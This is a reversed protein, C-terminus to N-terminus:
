NPTDLFVITRKKVFDFSRDCEVDKIKAAAAHLDACFESAAQKYDSFASHDLMVKYVRRSVVLMAILGRDFAGSDRTRCSSNRHDTSAFSSCCLLPSAAPQGSGVRYRHVIVPPGFNRTALGMAVALDAIDVDRSM